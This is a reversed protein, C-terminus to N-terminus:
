KKFAPAAKKRAANLLALDAKLLEFTTGPKMYPQVAEAVTPFLQKRDGNFDILFLLHSTREHAQRATLIYAEFIEAPSKALVKAFARTLASSHHTRALILKGPHEVREHTMGIAANEMATLHDRKLILASGFPNIVVGSLRPDDVVIHHLM